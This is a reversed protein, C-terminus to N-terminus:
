RVPPRRRGRQSVRARRFRTSVFVLAVGLSVALGGLAIAETVSLRTGSPSPSPAPAPAGHGTGSSNTFVFDVAISVYADTPIVFTGEPVSANTGTLAEASYRYTGNTLSVTINSAVTTVNVSKPGTVSVRWTSGAALGHETFRVLFLTSNGPGGTPVPVVVLDLALLEPVSSNVSYGAITFNTGLLTLNSVSTGSPLGRATAGGSANTPGLTLTSTVTPEHLEVQVSIGPVATGNVTAVSLRLETTNNQPPPPPVTVVPAVVLDVKLLDPVSANVSYGVTTYNTGLLSLNAVTTGAPLGAVSARGSANTPGLTVSTPGLPEQLGLKVSLAPVATGNSTTANLLLETTNVSVTPSWDVLVVTVSLTGTSNTRFVAPGTGSHVAFSQTGGSSVVRVTYNATYGGPTPDLSVTHSLAGSASLTYAVATSNVSTVSGPVTGSGLPGTARVSFNPVAWPLSTTYNGLVGSIPSRTELTTSYVGGTALFALGSVAGISEEVATPFGNSTRHPDLSNVVNTIPGPASNTDDVIPSGTVNFVNGYVLNYSANGVGSGYFYGFVLGSTAGNIVNGTITGYVDAQHIAEGEYSSVGSPVMNWGEIRNNSITTYNAWDYNQIASSLDHTQVVPLTNRILNGTVTNHLSPGINGPGDNWDGQVWIGLDTNLVTNNAVTVYDVKSELGIGATNISPNEQDASNDIRNAYVLSHTVGRILYIGEYTQAGNYTGAQPNTSINTINNHAVLANTINNEIRIGFSTSNSILNYEISLGNIWIGKGSPDIVQARVGYDHVYEAGGTNFIHNHSITVNSSDFDVVDGGSLSNYVFKTGSANVFGNTGSYGILVSTPNTAKPNLTFTNNELDSASAVFLAGGMMSTDVIRSHTMVFGPSSGSASVVWTSSSTSRTQQFSCNTVTVDSASVVLAEYYNKFQVGSFRAGAADVLFGVPGASGGLDLVAGGTLSLTAGSNARMWLPNSPTASEFTSDTANLVGGAAVTIGHALSGPESLSLTVNSLRLSGGSAITISGNVNLSTNAYRVATSITWNGNVTVAPTGAGPLAGSSLASALGGILVLALVALPTVLPTLRTRKARSYGM